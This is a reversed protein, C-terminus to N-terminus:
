IYTYAQANARQEDPAARKKINGGNKNWNELIGKVYSYSHKSNEDAIEAARKVLEEGYIEIDASIKEMLVPSMLGFGCKEFHKFIEINSNSSSTTTDIDLEKDLHTLKANCETEHLTETVNCSTVSDSLAICSDNIAQSELQKKKERHRRVREKALEKAKQMGEINQHESWGVISIVDQEISIMNFKCFINLAMKITNLEFDFENALMEADYPLNETLLIFGHSNCRGALNLLMIWILVIDNGGPLKRIQKIKRNDFMDTDLKIWKIEAM